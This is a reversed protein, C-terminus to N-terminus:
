LKRANMREVHAECERCYTPEDTHKGCRDCRNKNDAKLGDRWNNFREECWSCLEVHSEPYAEADLKRHRKTQYRCGNFLHTKRNSAVYLTGWEDNVKM